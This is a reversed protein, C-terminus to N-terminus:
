GFLKDIDSQSIEANGGGQAAAPEPAPAAKPPPPPPPPPAAKKPPPPPPPAAKPPPPPPPPAKPQPPPPPPAKPATAKPPAPPPAPPPPPPAPEPAAAFSNLLADVAAQDIGDGLAPGNLLHADPRDDNMKRHAAAADASAAVSTDVGWIEIMTNVRQEIYRLTNVVKSTRQGTIDQFSCATMIEICQAEISDILEAAEDRDGVLKQLRGAAEQVHETANLIETTARETATVIADLEGTAAMIRNAGADLPRLAAIESRTQQIYASMEQLEQRLIRLHTGNGASQRAASVDEGGVQGLRRVQAEFREGLRRWDDISLIRTRRDRMRLFARGRATSALTEEMSLYEDDSLELLEGSTM